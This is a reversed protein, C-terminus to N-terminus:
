SADVYGMPIFLIFIAGVERVAAGFHKCFLGHSFEHMVKLVAWVLFLWLWNDRAFIGDFGRTFRPWDMAVHAAGALVVALWVLFGFGGLAPRLWPEIATFFRDPRALPLKLVLPNLWTAASRLALETHERDGGSRASEVALLHNDKLWRVMHLAEAETFSEGGGDRALQALISAMTRTGDLARFFAYEELGVRHFRSAHPDEIVCVRRGSQEQISFRLGDRLRPRLMEAERVSRNEASM